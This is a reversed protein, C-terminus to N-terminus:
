LSNRRLLESNLPKVSQESMSRIAPMRKPPSFGMRVTYPKDGPRRLPGEDRRAFLPIRSRAWEPSREEEHQVFRPNIELLHKQTSPERIPMIVQHAQVNSEHVARRARVAWPPDWVDVKVIHFESLIFERRILQRADNLNDVYTTILGRLSLNMDRFCRGSHGQSLYLELVRVLESQAAYQAQELSDFIGINHALPLARPNSIDNSYHFVQFGLRPTRFHLEIGSFDM